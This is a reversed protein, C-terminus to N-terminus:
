YLEVTGNMHDADDLADQTTEEEIEGEEDSHGLTSASFILLVCSILVLFRLILTFLKM